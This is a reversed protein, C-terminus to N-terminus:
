DRCLGQPRVRRRRGDDLRAEIRKADLQEITALTGNKVNCIVSM